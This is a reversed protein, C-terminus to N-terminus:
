PRLNIARSVETLKVWRRQTSEVNPIIEQLAAQVWGFTRHRFDTGKPVYVKITGYYLNNKKYGKNLPKIFSKGFNTVPVETLNSWFKKLAIEDQQPYINLNAKLQRPDVNFMLKFWGVMFTILYPDSNTIAFNTTKSGEAWYLAAGFLRLTKFSLPCPVEEKAKQIIREIERKRREKQSNPGRALAQVRKTYFRELHEPKLPVSKLWLSLTSKAVPVEKLIESYSHGRKRLHIAKVKFEKPHKIM